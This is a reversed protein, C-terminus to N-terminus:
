REKWMEEEGKACLGSLISFFFLGAIRGIGGLWSGQLVGWGGVGVVILFAWLFDGGIELSSLM